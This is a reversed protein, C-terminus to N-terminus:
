CVDKLPEGWGDLQHLLDKIQKYVAGALETVDTEKGNRLTLIIRVGADQCDQLDMLYLLEGLHERLVKRIREPNIEEDNGTKALVSVADTFPLCSGNASIRFDRINDLLQSQSIIMASLAKFRPYYLPSEPGETQWRDIWTDTQAFARILQRLLNHIHVQSDM